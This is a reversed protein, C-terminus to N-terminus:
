DGADRHEARHLANPPCPQHDVVLGIMEVVDQMGRPKAAMDGGKEGANGGTQLLEPPFRGRLRFRRAGRKAVAQAREEYLPYGAPLCDLSRRSSSVFATM